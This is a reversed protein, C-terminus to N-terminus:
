PGLVGAPVLYIPDAGITIALGDAAPQAIAHGTVDYATRTEGALQVQATQGDTRWLAVWAGAPSALELAFRGAQPDHLAPDALPGTPVASAGIRALWALADRAPKAVIPQAPDESGFRYLGFDDEPPFTGHNPGDTVNYWCVPDLGLSGGLLLARALFRAQTAEDVSEYSPWGLETAALPLAPAHHLDLVARMDGAMGGLSREGDGDAEPPQRPWYVPYAHFAFVDVAALADPRATQLDHAFEIAGNVLAEHFVLGGSLVTCDACVGHIAHAAAVMLDAYRAPDGQATPLFFRWGANEENWLEFRHIRGAYHRAVQEAYAAYDAPDDPPYMPNGNSGAAAWPAGYALLAVVDLGLANAADIMPDIAQFEWQGRAPEITAWPLDLRIMRVGSAALLERQRSRRAVLEPSDGPSLGQAACLRDALARGGPQWPWDQASGILEDVSRCVGHDDPEFHLEHVPGSACRTGEPCPSDSSCPIESPPPDGCGVAIAAVATALLHARLSAVTM